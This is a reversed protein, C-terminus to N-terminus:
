RMLQGGDVILTQGSVSRAESLMLISRAVDNVDIAPPAGGAAIRAQVEPPYREIWPTEM